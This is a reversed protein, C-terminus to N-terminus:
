RHRHQVRFLFGAGHPRHAAHGCGDQLEMRQPATPPSQGPNAVPEGARFGAQRQPRQQQQVHWLGDRRLHDCGVPHNYARHQRRRCCLSIEGYGASLRSTGGGSNVIHGAGAADYYYNYGLHIGDSLAPYSAYLYGTANGGSMEVHHYAAGGSLQLDAGLGILGSISTGLLGSSNVAVLAGGSAITGGYIGNFVAKTQSTGIRIVNSEDGFGSNGIDINNNGTFISSGANLGLAINGSGSSLNGLAYYGAATNNNGSKNGYLAYAGDATNQAGNTNFYLAGSGNATNGYGTNNFYLAADGNATNDSGGTNFYLAASGNATNNYGSTNFYLAAFGNATNDDGSMTSNGSPGVFFNESAGNTNGISTLHGAQLGGQLNLAQVAYPAPTLNQVPSLAASGHVGDNFWIRLQLNAQSFVAANIATMNAQTTDGLVVTFLGSSVGVSVAATPESGNASTGDNSWYTVYTISPPPPAIIVSPPSTYGTGALNLTIATVAGGSVTATATAGSGGGGSFSVAPPTTYGNGGLVVTCSTVFSGTLHATAAAQSSANTSTVLAFKFLGTGNFDTANDLVRGQYTFTTNQAAAQYGNALVALTTLALFLNAKM